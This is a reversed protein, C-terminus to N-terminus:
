FCVSLASDWLASDVKFTDALVPFVRNDLLVPPVDLVTVM